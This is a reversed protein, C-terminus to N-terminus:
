KQLTTMQKKNKLNKLEPLVKKIFFDANVEFFAGILQFGEDPDLDEIFSVPQKICEAMLQMLDSSADAGAELFAALDPEKGTSFAELAPGAVSKM